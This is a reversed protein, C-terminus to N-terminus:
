GLYVQVHKGDNEVVEILIPEESSISKEVADLVMGMQEHERGPMRKGFLSFLWTVLSMPFSVM